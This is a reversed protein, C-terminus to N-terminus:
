LAQGALEVADKQNKKISKNFARTIYDQLATKRSTNSFLDHSFGAKDQPVRIRLKSPSAFPDGQVHDIYLTFNRFNYSGQLQKYAKYGRRDINSLINKLKEM